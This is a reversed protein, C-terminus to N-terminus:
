ILKFNNLTLWNKIAKIKELNIKFEKIIFILKLFKTKQIYFKCKQINTQLDAKWFKRLVSHIYNVHKKHIRNYILIDNFYVQIFYNFFNFLVENM